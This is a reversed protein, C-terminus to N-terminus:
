KVVKFPISYVPIKKACIRHKGSVKYECSDIANEFYNKAHLLALNQYM